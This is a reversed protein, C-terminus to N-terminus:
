LWLAATVTRPYYPGGVLDRTDCHIQDGITNTRASVQAWNIVEQVMGEPMTLGLVREMAYITLVAKSPWTNRSTSSLRLGGSVANWCVGVDPAGFTLSAWAGVPSHHTNFFPCQYM